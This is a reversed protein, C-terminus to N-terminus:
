INPEPRRKRQQDLWEEHEQIATHGLYSLYSPVKERPIRDLNEFIVGFLKAMSFYSEATENWGKKELFFKLSAMCFSGFGVLIGNMAYLAHHFYQPTIRIIFTDVFFYIGFLMSVVAAAWATIHFIKAKKKLRKASRNYYKFQDEVWAKRVDTDNICAKRDPAREDLFTWNKLAIVIWEAHEPDKTLFFDGINEEIGAIKWFMAIRLLEALIRNDLYKNDIGMRKQRFWYIFACAVLLFYAPLSVDIPRFHRSFLDFSLFDHDIGGYIQASVGLLFSLMFISFFQEGYQKQTSNASADLVAFREIEKEVGATNKIGLYEKSLARGPVTKRCLANYSDMQQLVYNIKRNEFCVSLFKEPSLSPDFVILKGSDEMGFNKIQYPKDIRNDSPTRKAPIRILAPNRDTSFLDRPNYQEYNMWLDSIEWTGGKQPEGNRHCAICGDWVSVLINIHEVLFRGEAFYSEAERERSGPLEEIYDATELLRQFDPLEQASFDNQYEQRSFPLVAMVEARDGLVRKGCETFIQDAGVALGSVLCFRTDPMASSLKVFFLELQERVEQPDQLDRHGTVGILVPIETSNM